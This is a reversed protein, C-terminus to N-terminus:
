KMIMVRTAAKAPTAKTAKSRSNFRVTATPVRFPSINYALMMEALLLMRKGKELGFKTVTIMDHSLRSM